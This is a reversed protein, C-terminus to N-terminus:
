LLLCILGNAGENIIRTLADKLKYRADDPMRRLKGTLGESVLEFVSKGFINSEWLKETNGEYEGLLYGVLEESQREDGVMPSIETQIEARLLHISPASARLKVGYSNGKKVIEPVEM